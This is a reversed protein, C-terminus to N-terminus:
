FELRFQYLLSLMKYDAFVKQFKKAMKWDHFCTKCILYQQTEKM